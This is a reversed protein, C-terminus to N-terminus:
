GSGRLQPDALRRNGLVDGFQLMFQSKLEHFPRPAVTRERTSTTEDRVVYQPGLGKQHLRAEASGWETFAARSQHRDRRGRTGACIQQRLDDGLELMGM